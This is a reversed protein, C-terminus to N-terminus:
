FIRNMNVKPRLKLTNQRPISIAETIKSKILTHPYERANLNNLNM